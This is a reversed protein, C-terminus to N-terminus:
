SSLAAEAGALRDREARAPCSRVRPRAARGAVDTFTRRTASTGPARAPPTDRNMTLLPAASALRPTLTSASNESSRRSGTPRRRSRRSATGHSMTARTRRVDLPVDRGSITSIWSGSAAGYASSLRSARRRSGGHTRMDCPSSSRPQIACCSRRRRVPRVGDSFLRILTGSVSTAWARLASRSALRTMTSDVSSASNRVARPRTAGARTARTLPPTSAESSSASREAEGDGRTSNTPDHISRLPTGSSHSAQRSNLAVYGPSRKVTAPVPTSASRTRRSKAGWHRAATITTEDISSSRSPSNSSLWSM